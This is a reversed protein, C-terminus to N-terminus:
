HVSLVKLVNGTKYKIVFPFGFDNKGVVVKKNDIRIKLKDIITLLYKKMTFNKEDFNNEILSLIAKQKLTEIEFYNSQIEFNFYRFYKECNFIINVNGLAKIYIKEDDIFKVRVNEIQVIKSNYILIIKKNYIEIECNTVSILHSSKSYFNIGNRKLKLKPFKSFKRKLKNFILLFILFLTLYFVFFLIM